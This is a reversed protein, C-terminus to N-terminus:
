NKRRYWTPFGNHECFKIWGDKGIIVDCWAIAKMNRWLELRLQQNNLYWGFRIEKPITSVDQFDSYWM